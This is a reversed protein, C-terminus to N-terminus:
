RENVEAVWQLAVVRNEKNRTYKPHSRGETSKGCEETKLVLRLLCCLDTVVPTRDRTIPIIHQFDSPTPKRAVLLLTLSSHKTKLKVRKGQSVRTCHQSTHLECFPNANVRAKLWMLYGSSKTPIRYLWVDLVALPFLFYSCSLGKSCSAKYNVTSLRTGPAM